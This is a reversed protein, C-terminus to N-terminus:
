SDAMRAQSSAKAESVTKTMQEVARQIGLLTGPATAAVARYDDVNLVYTHSVAGYPGHADIKITFKKHDVSKAFEFASALNWVMERGPPISSFRNQQENPGQSKGSGGLMWDAKLPPDIHLEVDTAVTPGENKM